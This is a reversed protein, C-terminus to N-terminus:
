FKGAVVVLADTTVVRVVTGKAVVPVVAGRRSNLTLKGRGFADIRVQGAVADGVLVRYVTGVLRKAVEVEVQLEREGGRDRYKASGKAGPSLPPATLAIRTDAVNALAVPVVQLFSAFALFLSLFSALRRHLFLTSHM